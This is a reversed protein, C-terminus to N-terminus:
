STSSHGSDMRSERQNEENNEQGPKRPRRHGAPGRHRHRGVVPARRLETGGRAHEPQRARAIQRSRQCDVDGEASRCRLVRVVQGPLVARSELRARVPGEERDQRHVVRQDFAGFRHDHGDCGACAVGDSRRRAGRDRNGVVAIRLVGAHPIRPLRGQRRVQHVELRPHGRALQHHPKGARQRVGVYLEPDVGAPASYRTWMLVM